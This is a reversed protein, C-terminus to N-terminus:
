GIRFGLVGNFNTILRVCVTEGNAPLGPVTVATTTRPGSTYLNSSGRGTTGLWMSYSTAGVGATWAFAQNLSSLTGGPVPSTVAAQTAATFTYGNSVQVTDYFTFLTAYITEGNTPLSTPTASTTTIEGSAYLNNAGPTTGLRLTYGTAGTAAAWSFTVKPGTLVRGPTPATLVAPSGYANGKLTIVLASGQAPTISVTATRPGFSAAGPAFAVTIECYTRGLITFGLDGGCTQTETFDSANAGGLAISNIQIRSPLDSYTNTSANATDLDTLDVVQGASVTGVEQNAFTVTSQSLALEQAASIAKGSLKVVHPSGPANDVISLTGSVTGTTGGLAGERWPGMAALADGRFYVAPGDPAPMQLVRGKNARRM